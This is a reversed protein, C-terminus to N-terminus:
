IPFCTAVHHSKTVQPESGMVMYALVGGDSGFYFFSFMVSFGLVDRHRSFNPFSLVKTFIDAPM